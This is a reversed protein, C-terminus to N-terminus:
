RGRWWRGSRAHKRDDKTELRALWAEVESPLGRHARFTRLPGAM